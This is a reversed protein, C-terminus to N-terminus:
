HGEQGHRRTRVSKCMTRRNLVLPYCVQMPGADEGVQEACTVEDRFIFESLMGSPDRINWCSLWLRTVPCSAGFLLKQKRTM